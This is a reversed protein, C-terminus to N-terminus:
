KRSGATFGKSRAFFCWLVTLDEDSSDVILINRKVLLVFRPLPREDLVAGLFSMTPMKATTLCM